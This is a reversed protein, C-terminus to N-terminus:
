IKREQKEEEEEEKKKKKKIVSRPGSLIVIHDKGNEESSRL